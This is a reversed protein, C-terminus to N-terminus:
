EEEGDSFGGNAGLKEKLSISIEDDKDELYYDLSLDHNTIYVKNYIYILHVFRKVIDINNITPIDKYAVIGDPAKEGYLKEYNSLVESPLYRDDNSIIYVGIFSYLSRQYEKPIAYNDVIAKKVVNLNKVVEDSIKDINDDFVSKDNAKAETLEYEVGFHSKYINMDSLAAVKSSYIITSMYNPKNNSVKTLVWVKGNNNNEPHSDYCYEPNLKIKPMNSLNTEVFNKITNVLADKDNHVGIILLMVKHGGISAYRNYKAMISNVSSEDASGKSCMYATKLQSKKNGTTGGNVFYDCKGLNVDYLIYGIYGNSLNKPIDDIYRNIKFRNDIVTTGLSSLHDVLKTYSSNTYETKNDTDNTNIMDENDKKIDEKNSNDKDRIFEKVYEASSAYYSEYNPSDDLSRCFRQAEVPDDKTTQFVVKLQHRPIDPNMIDLYLGIPPCFDPNRYKISYRIENVIADVGTSKARIEYFNFRQNTEVNIISIIYCTEGPNIHAM